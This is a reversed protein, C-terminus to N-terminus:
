PVCGNTILTRATRRVQQRANTNGRFMNRLKTRWTEIPVAPEYDFLPSPQEGHEGIADLLADLAAWQLATLTVSRSPAGTKRRSATVPVGHRKRRERYRRAREAATPDKARTVNPESM